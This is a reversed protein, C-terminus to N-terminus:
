KVAYFPHIWIKNHMFPIISDILSSPTAEPTRSAKCSWNIASSHMFLQLTSNMQQQHFHNNFKKISNCVLRDDESTRALTRPLFNIHELFRIDIITQM